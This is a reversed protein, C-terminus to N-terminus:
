TRLHCDDQIECRCLVFGVCKTLFWGLCMATLNASLRNLPKLYSHNSLIKQYPEINIQGTTITMKSKGDVCFFFVKICYKYLNGYM